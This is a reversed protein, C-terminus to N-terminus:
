GHASPSRAASVRDALPSFSRAHSALRSPDACTLVFAPGVLPFRQHLFRPLDHVRPDCGFQRGIPVGREVELEAVLAGLRREVEHRPDVERRLSDDVEAATRADARPHEEIPERVRLNEGDGVGLRHEGLRAAAQGVHMELLGVDGFPLRILRGVQDEGVRRQLPQRPCSIRKGRKIFQRASPPASATCIASLRCSGLWENIRM